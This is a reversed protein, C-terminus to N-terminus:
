SIAEGSISSQSREEHKTLYVASQARVIDRSGCRKSGSNTRSYMSSSERGVPYVNSSTADASEVDPKYYPTGNDTLALLFDAYSVVGDGTKDFLKMAKQIQEATTSDLEPPPKNTISKSYLMMPSSKSSLIPLISSTKRRHIKIENNSHQSDGSCSSIGLSVLPSLPANTLSFRRQSASPLVDIVANSRKFINGLSHSRGRIRAAAQTSSPYGAKDGSFEDSDDHGLAKSSSSPQYIHKRSDSRTNTQSMLVSRKRAASTVSLVREMDNFTIYGKNDTDLLHFATNISQIDFDRPDLTAALFETFSIQNDGNVDVASFISDIDNSSLQESCNPPNCALMAQRFEERSLTGNNDQDFSQFFARRDVAKDLPMNYAMAMM